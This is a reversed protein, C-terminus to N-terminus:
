MLGDRGDSVGLVPRVIDVWAVRTYGTGLLRTLCM